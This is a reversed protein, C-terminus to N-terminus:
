QPVQGSPFGFRAQYLDSISPDAHVRLDVAGLQVQLRGSSTSGLPASSNAPVIEPTGAPPSLAVYAVVAAVALALASLTLGLALLPQFLARFVLALGAVVLVLPWLDLARLLRDGPVWGFNVLFAVIGAVILVLPLILGGLGWLGGLGGRLRTRWTPCSTPPPPP